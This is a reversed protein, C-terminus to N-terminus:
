EKWIDGVPVIPINTKEKLMSCIEEYYFVPTIVICDCDPVDAETGIMGDVGSYAAQDMVAVIEIDTKRLAQALRAGIFGNGYIMTRQFGKKHFYAEIHGGAYLFALWDNFLRMNVANRDARTKQTNVMNVLCKGGLYFGGLFLGAGATLLYRKKM